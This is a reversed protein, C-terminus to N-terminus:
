QKSKYMLAHHAFIRMDRQIMLSTLLSKPRLALALALSELYWPWIKWRDEDYETCWKKMMLTTHINRHERVRERTLWM